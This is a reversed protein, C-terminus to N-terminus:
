RQGDRWPDSKVYELEPVPDDGVVQIQRQRSRRDYAALREEADLVARRERYQQAERRAKELEAALDPFLLKLLRTRM